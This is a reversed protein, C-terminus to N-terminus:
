IKAVPLGNGVVKIVSENPWTYSFYRGTTASVGGVTARGKDAKHEARKAVHSGKDDGPMFLLPSPGDGGRSTGYPWSGLWAMVQDSVHDALTPGAPTPVYSEIAKEVQVSLVTPPEARQRPM